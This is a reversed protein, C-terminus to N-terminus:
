RGDRSQAAVAANNSSGRSFQEVDRWANEFVIVVEPDVRRGSMERLADMSEQRTLVPQGGRGQTFAEFADVVALVRGGIPIEEGALGQPYGSGDWWESQAVVIERVAGVVDLPRTLAQSLEDLPATEGPAPLDM